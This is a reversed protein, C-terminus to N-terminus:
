NKRTVRKGCGANQLTRRQLVTKEPGCRKRPKMSDWHPQVFNV